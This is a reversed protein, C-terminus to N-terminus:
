APAAGLEVALARKDAIPDIAVSNSPWVRASPPGSRFRLDTLTLPAALFAMPAPVKWQPLRLLAISRCFTKPTFPAGSKM